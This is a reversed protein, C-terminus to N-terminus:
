AESKTRIYTPLRTEARKYASFSSYTLNNDYRRKYKYHLRRVTEQEAIILAEYEWLVTEAYEKRRKRVM